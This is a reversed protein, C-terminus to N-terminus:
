RKGTLHGLVGGARSGTLQTLNSADVNMVYIGEKELEEGEWRDNSRYLCMQSGDPSFDIDGHDVWRGLTNTITTINFSDVDMMYIDDDGVLPDDGGFANSFYSFALKTGDPSWALDPNADVDTNPTFPRPNSGDAGMVWIDYGLLYAIKTGDPSWVQAHWTASKANENLTGLSSGDPDVTYLDNTHGNFHSFAIKGNDPLSSAEATNTKQGLALLCIALMAAAAVLSVKPLNASELAVRSLM